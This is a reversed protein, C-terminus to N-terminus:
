KPEATACRPSQPKHLRTIEVLFEVRARIDGSVDVPSLRAAGIERELADVDVERGPHDFREIPLGPAEAHGPLRQDLQPDGLPQLLRRSARGGADDRGQSLRLSLPLRERAPKARTRANTTRRDAGAPHLSALFAWAEKTWRADALAHHRSEKQHPLEPDGLEIAWQKIDLCLQPFHFPLEELGGFLWVFAVWDYAPFYGWFVPHEDGDTFNRLAYSIYERSMGKGDLQPRVNELTWPSAKSWDTENSEAYFERGSEAVLGISILDITFPRAIFETDLWYKM